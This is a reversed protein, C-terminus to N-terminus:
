TARLASGTNRLRKASHGVEVPVSIECAVERTLKGDDASAGAIVDYCDRCDCRAVRVVPKLMGGGPGLERFLGLGIKNLGPTRQNM